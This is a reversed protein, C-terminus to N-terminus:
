IWMCSKRMQRAPVEGDGLIPTVAPCRFKDCMTMAASGPLPSINRLRRMALFPLIKRTGVSGNEIVANLGNKGRFRDSSIGEEDSGM